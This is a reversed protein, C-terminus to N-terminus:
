KEGDGYIEVLFGYLTNGIDYSRHNNLKHVSSLSNLQEFLQQSFKSNLEKVLIHPPVNSYTPVDNWLQPYKETVITFLLHMLYYNETFDHNEWYHIMLRKTDHILLNGSSCSLFWSSLKIDQNNELLGNKFAFFPNNEVINKIKDNTCLVTSDLWVGGYEDLLMLRLIDSFTASKIIGAKYKQMISNPISIYKDINNLTVINFQYDSFYKKASNLCVKSLTPADSLGQLWCWWVTKNFDRKSIINETNVKKEEFYWQYERKLKQHVKYTVIREDISKEHTSILKLRLNFLSQDLLRGKMYKFLMNKSKAKKSNNIFKDLKKHM